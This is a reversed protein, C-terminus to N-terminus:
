KGAVKKTPVTTTTGLERASLLQHKVTNKTHMHASLEMREVLPVMTLGCSECKFSMKKGTGGITASFWGVDKAKDCKYTLQIQASNSAKKIAMQKEQAKIIIGIFKRAVNKMSISGM